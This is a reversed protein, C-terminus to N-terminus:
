FLLLVMSQAVVVVPGGAPNLTMLSRGRDDHRGPLHDVAIAMRGAAFLRQEGSPDPAPTTTGLNAAPVFVGVV